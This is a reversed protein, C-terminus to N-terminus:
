ENHNMHFGPPVNKDANPDDWQRTRQQVVPRWQQEQSPPPWYQTVGNQRTPSYNGHYELLWFIFRLVLLFVIIYFVVGGAFGFGSGFSSGSKAGGTDSTTSM